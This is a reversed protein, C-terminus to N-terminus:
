PPARSRRGQGGRLGGEAAGVYQAPTGAWWGSDDEENWIEWATVRGAFANVLYGLFGAYDADDAPAHPDRELRRRGM